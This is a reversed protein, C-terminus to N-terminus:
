LTLHNEFLSLRKDYCQHYSDLIFVVFDKM